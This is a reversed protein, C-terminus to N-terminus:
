NSAFMGDIYCRFILLLCDITKKRLYLQESILRQVEALNILYKLKLFM